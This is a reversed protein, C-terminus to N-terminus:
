HGACTVYCEVFADGTKSCGYVRKPDANCLERGRREVAPKLDRICGDADSFGNCIGTDAVGVKWSGDPQMKERLGTCGTLLVLGLLFWRM